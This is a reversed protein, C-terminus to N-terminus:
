RRDTGDSPLPPLCALLSLSAGDRNVEVPVSVGHSLKRVTRRVANADSVLHGCFRHLLDGRRIGAAAAPSDDDVAAVIVGRGGEEVAIGLRPPRPRPAEVADLCFVADCIGVALPNASRVEQPHAAERTLLVAIDDIGLDRLQYPTGYGFELHGRGIIGVVMRDPDGARSVAINQAFARDWVQQADVFGDFRADMERPACDVSPNIMGFLYRRYADTAPASPTVGDREAEPIAAWGERRVRSVLARYCNLAIMPVKVQRCFHFIPLYLEPDFGWVTSWRAEDLFTEVGIEGAVWRDLVPQASRPFMEFGVALYPDRAHLAAIVRMQWLHIEMVDHTEGLLVAAKGQMSQLLEREDVLAGVAPDFWTGPPHDPPAVPNTAAMDSAMIA